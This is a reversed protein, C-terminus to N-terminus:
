PQLVAIFCRPTLLLTFYDVFDTTVATELSSTRVVISCFVVIQDSQGILTAYFARLTEKSSSDALSALPQSAHYGKTYAHEALVSFLRTPSTSFPLSASSRISVSVYKPRVAKLSIGFLNLCVLAARVKSGKLRQPAVCARITTGRHSLGPRDSM